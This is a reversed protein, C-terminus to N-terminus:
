AQGPALAAFLAWALAPICLTALALAAALVQLIRGRVVASQGQVAANARGPPSFSESNIAEAGTRWLYVCLLLLPLTLLGAWAAALVPKGILQQLHVALWQHFQEQHRTALWLLGGLAITGAALVSLLQASPRDPHSM